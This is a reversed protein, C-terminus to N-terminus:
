EDGDGGLQERLVALVALCAAAAMVLRAATPRGRRRYGATREAVFARTSEKLAEEAHVAAFAERIRDNM